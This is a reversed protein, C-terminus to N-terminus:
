PYTLRDTQEKCVCRTVPKVVCLCPRDQESARNQRHHHLHVPDHPRPAADHHAVLGAGDALHLLEQPREVPVHPQGEGLVVFPHHVGLLRTPPRLKHFLRRLPWWKLKLGALLLAPGKERRADTLMPLETCPKTIAAAATTNETRKHAGM